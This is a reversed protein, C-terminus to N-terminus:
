RGEKREFLSQFRSPTIFEVQQEDTLTDSFHKLLIKLEENRIEFYREEQVYHSFIENSFNDKADESYGDFGAIAFHRVDINRLLNLLMITSNDYNPYGVSVVKNFDVTIDNSDNTPINSTIIRKIKNLAFVENEYRKHNGYFVYDPLAEKYIHNVSIVIPFTNEIFKLIDKAYTLSTKGFVIVLVTRNQFANKLSELNKADEYKSSSYELYVKELNDYDYRKRTEPAIRQLIHRIDKTQLRNKKLLYSVNNPHASYIGSILSPISYEWNHEAKLWHIHDDIVDCISDFDYNYGCQSNLYDVVLETNLNGAGKGMGYLTADLIINRMGKSMEIIEQAFSFSLQMNNHTHFDITINDNLNHEAMSYYRILDNKYMRGFTDVIGVAYPNISNIKEITHLFELDSYNKTEVMQAFLLYGKNQILQMTEIAANFDNKRFGLRIGIITGDCEPLNHFDWGGYEGGYDTFLIYQANGKNKPLCKKAQEVDTFFTSNGNYTVNGRLFGIEIIDIGAKTLGRLIGDIHFQPFACDIVRGGDRLTCDLIKVNRKM